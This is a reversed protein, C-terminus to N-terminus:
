SFCHHLRRLIADFISVTYFPTQMYGSIRNYHSIKTSIQYKTTVHYGRWFQQSHLRIDGWWEFTSVDAYDSIKSRSFHQCWRLKIDGVVWFHQCWRLRIDKVKFLASMLTIRYGRGELLASM